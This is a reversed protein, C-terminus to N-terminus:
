RMMKQPEGQRSTRNQDVQDAEVDFNRKVDRGLTSHLPYALIVFLRKKHEPAAALCM